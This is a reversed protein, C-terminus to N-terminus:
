NQETYGQIRQMIKVAQIQVLIFIKESKKYLKNSYQASAGRHPEYIPFMLSHTSSLKFILKMANIGLNHLTM